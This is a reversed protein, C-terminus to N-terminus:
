HGQQRKRHKCFGTGARSRYLSTQKRASIIFQRIQLSSSLLTAGGRGGENRMRAYWGPEDVYVVSGTCHGSQPDCVRIFYRGYEGEGQKMEFSWMGKGNATNVVGQRVLKASSGEVYNALNEESNDWWWRWDLKYM